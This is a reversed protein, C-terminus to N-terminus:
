NRVAVLFIIVGFLLLASVILSLKEFNKQTGNYIKFFRMVLVLCAAFLLLCIVAFLGNNMEQLFNAFKYYLSKM